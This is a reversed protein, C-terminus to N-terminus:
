LQIESFKGDIMESHCVSHVLIFTFVSIQFPKYFYISISEDL